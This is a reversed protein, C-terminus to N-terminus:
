FNNNMKTPKYDYQPYTKFFNKSFQTFTRTCLDYRLIKLVGLKFFLNDILSVYM